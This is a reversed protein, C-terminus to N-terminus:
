TAILPARMRSTKLLRSIMWLSGIFLFPSSYFGPAPRAVSVTAVTHGLITVLTHGLSNLLMILAYFWALPRLWHPNRTALPTLAFCIAVAVLLGVLWERFQFTPMPFWGWRARMATVTPNYIGLFGTFAEDVVHLAFAVTLALWPWGFGTNPSERTEM